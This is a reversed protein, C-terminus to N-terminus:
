VHVLNEHRSVYRFNLSAGPTTDFTTSWSPGDWQEDDRVIFKYRNGDAKVRRNKVFSM